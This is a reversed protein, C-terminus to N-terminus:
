TYAEPHLATQYRVESPVLPDCTRITDDRGNLFLSEANQQFDKKICNTETLCHRVIVLHFLRKLLKEHKICKIFAYYFVFDLVFENM